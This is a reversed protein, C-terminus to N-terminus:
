RCLADSCASSVTKNSPFHNNGEALPFWSPPPSSLSLCPTEENAAESPCQRATVTGVHGCGRASLGAEASRQQSCVAARRSPLGPTAEREWSLTPSWCLKHRKLCSFIIEIFSSHEIPKELHFVLGPTRPQMIGIMWDQLFSLGSSAQSPKREGTGMTCLSRWGWDQRPRGDTGAARSLQPLMWPGTCCTVAQPSTPQSVQGVRPM